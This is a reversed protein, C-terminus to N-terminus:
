RIRKVEALFNNNGVEMEYRGSTEYIKVRPMYSYNYYYFYRAQQWVQGNTLKYATEGDWGEYTDTIQSECVLRRM